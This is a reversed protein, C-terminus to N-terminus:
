RHQNAAYAIANAERRYQERKPGRADNFRKVAAEYHAEVVKRGHATTNLKSRPNRLSTMLVAHNMTDESADGRPGDSGIVGARTM